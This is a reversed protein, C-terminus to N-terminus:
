LFKNFWDLFEKNQFNIYGIIRAFEYGNKDVLITTPLGRINLEQSIEVGSGIFIELNSINLDDFFIKSKEYSDGGINIALVDINKYKINSKIKNLLPMEERCPACWTAWFNIIIVNGIYESLSIKERKSNIFEINNIKKKDKHILLNKFDPRDIAYVLNSSILYIIIVLYNLNKYKM